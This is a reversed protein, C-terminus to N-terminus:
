ESRAKTLVNGRGPIQEKKKKKAFCPHWFPCSSWGEVRHLGPISRCFEAGSLHVFFATELEKLGRICVEVRNLVSWPLITCFLTRAKYGSAAQPTPGCVQTGQPMECKESHCAAQLTRLSSTPLPSCALVSCLSPASGRIQGDHIEPSPQM